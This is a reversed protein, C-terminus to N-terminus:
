DNEDHAAAKEKSHGQNYSSQNNELTEPCSLSSVTGGALPMTAVMLHPTQPQFAPKRTTTTSRHILSYQSCTCDSPSTSVRPGTWDRRYDKQNPSYCISSTFHEKPVPINGCVYVAPIQPRIGRPSPSPPKASILREARGAKRRRPCMWPVEGSNGVLSWPMTHPRQNNCFDLGRPKSVVTNGLQRPNRSSLTAHHGQVTLHTCRAQVFSSAMHHLLGQFLGPSPGQSPHEGAGSLMRHM